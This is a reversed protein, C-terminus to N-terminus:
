EEIQQIYRETNISQNHGSYHPEVGTTTTHATHHPNLHQLTDNHYTANHRADDKDDGRKTIRRTLSDHSNRLM